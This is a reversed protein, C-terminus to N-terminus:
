YSGGERTSESSEAAITKKLAIAKSLKSALSETSKPVKLIAPAQDAKKLISFRGPEKSTSATIPKPAKNISASLSPKITEKQKKAEEVMLKKQWSM